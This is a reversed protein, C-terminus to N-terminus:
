IGCMCRISNITNDHARHTYTNGNICAPHAFSFTAYKEACRFYELQKAETKFNRVFYVLFLLLTDYHTHPTPLM